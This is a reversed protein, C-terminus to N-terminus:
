SFNIHFQSSISISHANNINEKPDNKIILFIFRVVLTRKMM